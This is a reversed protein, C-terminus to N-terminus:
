VTHDRRAIQVRDANVMQLTHAASDISDRLVHNALLAIGLAKVKVVRVSLVTQANAVCKALALRGLAVIQVTFGLMASQCGRACPVHAITITIASWSKISMRVVYQVSFVHVVLFAGVVSWTTSPLVSRALNATDLTQGRVARCGINVLTAPVVSNM